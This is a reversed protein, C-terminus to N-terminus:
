SSLKPMAFRVGAGKTPSAAGPASASEVSTRSTPGSRAAQLRVMTERISLGTASIGCSAACMTAAPPLRM